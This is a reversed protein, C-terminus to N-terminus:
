PDSSVEFFISWCTLCIMDVLSSRNAGGGQVGKPVSRLSVVLRM